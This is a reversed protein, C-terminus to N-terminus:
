LRLVVPRQPDIARTRPAWAVPVVPRAPAAPLAVAIPSVSPRRSASTTAEDGSIHFVHEGESFAGPLHGPHPAGEPRHPSGGPHALVLHLHGGQSVVSVSHAHDSLRLTLVSALFGAAPSVQAGACVLMLLASLRRVMSPMTHSEVRLAV